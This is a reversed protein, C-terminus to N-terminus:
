QKLKEQAQSLNAKQAMNLSCNIAFGAIAIIIFVSMLIIVRNSYDLPHVTLDVGNSFGVLGRDYDITINMNKMAPQGLVLLNSSANFEFATRLICDDGDKVFLAQNLSFKYNQQSVFEIALNKANVAV